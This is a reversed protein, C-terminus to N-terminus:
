GAENQGRFRCTEVPWTGLPTSGFGVEQYFSSEPSIGRPGPSSRAVLLRRCKHSSCIYERKGKKKGAKGKHVGLELDGGSAPGVRIQHEFNMQRYGPTRVSSTRDVPSPQTERVVVLVLRQM